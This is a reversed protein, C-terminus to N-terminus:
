SEDQYCKIAWNMQMSNVHSDAVFSYSCLLPFCDFDFNRVLIWTYPHSFPLLLAVHLWRIPWQYALDVLDDLTLAFELKVSQMSLYEPSQSMAPRNLLHMASAVLLYNPTQMRIETSLQHYSHPSQYFEIAYPLYSDCVLIWFKFFSFFYNETELKNMAESIIDFRDDGFEAEALVVIVVGESDFYARHISGRSTHHTFSSGMQISNRPRRDTLWFLATGNISATGIVKQIWPRDVALNFTLM